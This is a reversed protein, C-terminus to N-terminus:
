RPVEVGAADVGLADSPLTPGFGRGLGAVSGGHRRRAVLRDAVVHARLLRLERVIAELLVLVPDQAGSTGTSAEPEVPSPGGTPEVREPHESDDVPALRPTLASM